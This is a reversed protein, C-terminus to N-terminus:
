IYRPKEAKWLRFKKRRIRFKESVSKDFKLAIHACNNSLLVLEDFNVHYRKNRKFEFIKENKIRSLFLENVYARNHVYINRLENFVILLERQEENEFLSIGLREFIYDEMKRIGSYSLENIKKDIIFTILENRNKFNLIDEFKLHEKSRLLDNNKMMASRISHSIFCSFAENIGTVLNRSNIAAYDALRKSFAEPNEIIKEYKRAIERDTEGVILAKAATLATQDARRALDVTFFFLEYINKFDSLFFYLSKSCVIDGSVFFLKVENKSRAQM